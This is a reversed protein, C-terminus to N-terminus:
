AVNQADGQQKGLYPTIGRLTPAEIWFGYKSLLEESTSNSVHFTASATGRESATEAEVRITWMGAELKHPITWSSTRYLDGAGATAPVRGILKGSPDLVSLTVRAERVRNGQQDQVKVISKITQGMSTSNPAKPYLVNVVLTDTQIVKARAPAGATSIGLVMLAMAAVILRKGM